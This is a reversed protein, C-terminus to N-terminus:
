CLELLTPFRPAISEPPNSRPIITILRDIVENRDPPLVPTRAPHQASRVSSPASRGAAPRVIAESSPRIATRDRLRLGSSRM